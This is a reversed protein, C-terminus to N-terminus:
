SGHTLDRTAYTLSAHGYLIAGEPLGGASEAGRLAARAAGTTVAERMGMRLLDTVSHTTVAESLPTPAIPEWVESEPMRSAEGMYPSVVNGRNAVVAAVM